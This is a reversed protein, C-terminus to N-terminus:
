IEPCTERTYVKQRVTCLNTITTPAPVPVRFSIDVRGAFIEMRNGGVSIFDGPIIAEDEWIVNTNGNNKITFGNCRPDIPVNGAKSFVKSTTNYKLLREEM